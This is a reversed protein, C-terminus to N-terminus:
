SRGRGAAFADVAYARVPAASDIRASLEELLEHLDALKRDLEGFRRLVVSYISDSQICALLESRTYDSVSRGGAVACAAKLSDYEEQSLRFVVIRNRQKLLPM